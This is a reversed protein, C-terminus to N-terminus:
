RPRPALVAPTLAMAMAASRALVLPEISALGVALGVPLGCIRPLRDYHRTAPAPWQKM